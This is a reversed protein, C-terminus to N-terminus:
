LEKEIFWPFFYAPSGGTRNVFDLKL